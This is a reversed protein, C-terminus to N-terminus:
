HAVGRDRYFAEAFWADLENDLVRLAINWYVVRDRLEWARERHTAREGGQQLELRLSRAQVRLEVLERLHRRARKSLTALRHYLAADTRAIERRLERHRRERHSWGLRVADLAEAVAQAWLLLEGPQVPALAARELQRLARTM